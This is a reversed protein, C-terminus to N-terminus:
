STFSFIIWVYTGSDVEVEFDVSFTSFIFLALMVYTTSGLELMRSISQNKMTSICSLGDRVKRVLVVIILIYSFSSSHSEM